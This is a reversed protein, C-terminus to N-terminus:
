PLSEVEWFRESWYKSPFCGPIDRFTWSCISLERRFGECGWINCDGGATAKAGCQPDFIPLETHCTGALFLQSLATHGWPGMELNRIWLYEHFQKTQACHRFRKAGVEMFGSKFEATPEREQPGCILRVAMAIWSLPCIASWGITKLDRIAMSIRTTVKLRNTRGEPELRWFSLKWAM